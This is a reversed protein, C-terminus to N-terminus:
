DKPVKQSFAHYAGMVQNVYNITFAGNFKGQKVVSMRYYQPDAKLRLCHEVNNPWVNAKYGLTEALRIADYVHAIGANYGALSLCMLDEDSVGPVRKRLRDAIRIYLKCALDINLEPDLVEEPDHGFIRATQPMLQMLGIPGKTSIVAHNFRSEIYAIGALMRWDLNYEKAKRKFIDDYPSIAGDKMKFSNVILPRKRKTDKKRRAVITYHPTQSDLQEATISDIKHKLTDSVNTVAWALSDISNPITDSVVLTPYYDRMLRAVNCRLMVAETLGVIMSDTLLETNLSDNPITDIVYPRFDFLKQIKRDKYINWQHSGEILSLKYKPLEALMSDTLLSDKYAETKLKRASAICQGDAWRPGTPRLYWYSEMVSYAMPWISVDAAGYFLSDILAEESKVLMINLKLGLAGAVTKANEYENGYWRGRYEFASFSTQLTVVNLTDSALIESWTRSKPTREIEIVEVKQNVKHWLFGVLVFLGIALVTRLRDYLKESKTKPRTNGSQKTV